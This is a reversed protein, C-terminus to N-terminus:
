FLKDEVATIEREFYYHKRWSIHGKQSLLTGETAFLDRRHCNKTFLFNDCFPDKQRLPSGVTVSLITRPPLM